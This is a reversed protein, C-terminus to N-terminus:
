VNWQILEGIIADKFEKGTNNLDVIDVFFPIASNEIDNKIAVILNMNIKSGTDLALDIDSGMRSDGRARSGYLYIKCLPLYKKVIKILEIKDQENIKPM